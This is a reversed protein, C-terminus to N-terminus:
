EERICLRQVLAAIVLDEREGSGRKSWRGRAGGTGEIGVIVDVEVDPIHTDKNHLVRQPVHIGREEEVAM